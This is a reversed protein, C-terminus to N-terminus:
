IVPRTRFFLLQPMALGGALAAVIFVTKLGNTIVADTLEHSVQSQATLKILATVTEFAFVGPLMPISAAVALMLAPALHRKAFLIAMFGIAAAASFTAWEIALGHHLLFTRFAHAIAGAFACHILFRKPVNFVMAFGVAPVASFLADDILNLLLSM